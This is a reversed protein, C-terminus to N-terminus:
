RGEGKSLCSMDGGRGGEFLCPMEFLHASRGPCTTSLTHIAELGLCMSDDPDRFGEVYM